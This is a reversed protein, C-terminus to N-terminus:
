IPLPGVDDSRRGRRDGSRGSCRGSPAFGRLRGYDNRSAHVNREVRDEDVMSNSVKRRKEEAQGDRIGGETYRRGRRNRGSVRRDISRGSGSGRSGSSDDRGTESISLVGDLNTKTRGEEM